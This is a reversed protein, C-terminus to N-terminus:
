PMQVYIVNKPVFAAPMRNVRAVFYNFAVIFQFPLVPAHAIGGAAVAAHSYPGWFCSSRLENSIECKNPMRQELAAPRGQQVKSRVSIRHCMRNNNIDMLFARRPQSRMRSQKCPKGAVGCFLCCRLFPCFSSFSPMRLAFNISETFQASIAVIFFLQM